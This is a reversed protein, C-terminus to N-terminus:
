CRPMVVKYEMLFWQAWWKELKKLERLISYFSLFFDNCEQSSKLVGWLKVIRDHKEKIWQEKIKKIKIKILWFRIDVM